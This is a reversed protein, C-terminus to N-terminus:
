ARAAESALMAAGIAGADNGLAAPVIPVDRRVDAGEVADRYAARAPELLVDGATAAGGGVVVIEPDLVNVLGAIGEGLRRGVEALIAISAADGDGAAATVAEGTVRAPDGGAIRGLASDPEDRAARQGAREIALGSAVQEWCGRNGCGCRPGDPEVIVHGIEGALGRAGRILRGGAIIGGGIGTGVGVFLSNPHGASAGIRSEAWAAATADNDVTVPLGFRTRLEEGLHVDRWSLNPSSLLIGDAVDVLGAAGVGIAAVSEDLVTAVAERITELTADQDEAPTRHVSRDLVGGEASVRLAATKTGGVDVGIAIGDSV